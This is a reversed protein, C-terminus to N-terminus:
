RIGNKRCISSCRNCQLCQYASIRFEQSQADRTIAQVPCQKECLGCQVCRSPEIRRRTLAVQAFGGLLVGYPCVFRCFPRYVRRGLMVGLVFFGWAMWDGVRLVGPEVLGGQLGHAIRQIWGCGLFFVPKYPDLLCVLFCTGRLALWATAILVLVPLPNLWRLLSQPIPRTRTGGLLDQLAGIPRGAACFVRGMVFAVALPLLFVLGTSVGVREPHRLGISLNAVAGVPCICGGRLLGFYLLAIMGPIWLRRYHAQRWVMVGGTLLVAALMGLDAWIWRASEPRYQRPQYQNRWTAIGEDSSIDESSPIRFCEPASEPASESAPPAAPAWQWLALWLWIGLLAARKM